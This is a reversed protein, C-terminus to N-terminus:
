LSHAASLAVLIAITDDVMVSTVAPDALHWSRTLNGALGHDGM